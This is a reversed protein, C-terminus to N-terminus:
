LVRLSLFTLTVAPVHTPLLMASLVTSLSEDLLQPLSTHGLLYERLRYLAVPRVLLEPVSVM